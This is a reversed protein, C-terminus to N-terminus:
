RCREAMRLLYEGIVQLDDATLDVGSHWGPFYGRLTSGGTWVFMWDGMATEILLHGHDTSNDYIKTPGGDPIDDVTEPFSLQTM